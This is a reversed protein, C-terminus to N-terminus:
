RVASKTVSAIKAVIPAVIAISNARSVDLAAICRRDRDRNEGHNDDSRGHDNVLRVRVM